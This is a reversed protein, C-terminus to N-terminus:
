SPRSLPLLVTVNTGKGLQSTVHITGKHAEVINLSIALGLGTGRTNTTFLPEFIKSLHWPAIGVGSDKVIIAVWDSEQGTADDVDSEIQTSITLEGGNPMAQISNEIINSFVQKLLNPDIEVEKIDDSLNWHVKVDEPIKLSASVGKLYDGLQVRRTVVQVVRSFNLLDEIIKISSEIESQALNLVQEMQPDSKAIETTKLSEKVYYVANQIAGLPNKLEHAVGAALRGLSSFRESHILSDQRERDKDKGSSDSSSPQSTGGKGEGEHTAPSNEEYVAWATEKSTSWVTRARGEFRCHPDGKAVCAKELFYITDKGHESVVGSFYGALVWCQPLSAKKHDKTKYELAEASNAADFSYEKKSPHGTFNSIDAMGKLLNDASRNKVDEVGCAYGLRALIGYTKSEGLHDLLARKIKILAERGLVWEDSHTKSFTNPGLIAEIESLPHDGPNNLDKATNM